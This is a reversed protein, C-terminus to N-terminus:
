AGQLESSGLVSWLSEGCSLEQWCLDIESQYWRRHADPAVPEPALGQYFRALRSALRDLDRRDPGGSRLAQDLMLMEPLRRMVVLWDVVRGDGGIRLGDGHPAFTLPEIGLYVDPALRRNLRAEVLCNRHRAGLPRLDILPHRVAKKLKYAFHDTLFVWSMHTELAEVSGPRERAHSEASGLFAVKTQWRFM